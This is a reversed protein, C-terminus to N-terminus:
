VQISNSVTHGIFHTIFQPPPKLQDLLPTSHFDATPPVTLEGCFRALNHTPLIPSRSWTAVILRVKNNIQVMAHQPPVATSCSSHVSGGIIEEPLLPKRLRILSLSLSKRGLCCNNDGTTRELHLHVPTTGHNGLLAPKQHSEPALDSTSCGSLCTDFVYVTEHGKGFSTDIAITVTEATWFTKECIAASPVFISCFGSELTECVWLWWWDHM